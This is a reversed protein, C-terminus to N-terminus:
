RDYTELRTAHRHEAILHALQKGVALVRLPQCPLCKKQALKEVVVAEHIRLKSALRHNMAVAMVFGDHFKVSFLLCQLRHFEVEGHEVGSATSHGAREPELAVM